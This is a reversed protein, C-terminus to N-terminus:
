LQWELTLVTSRHPLVALGVSPVFSNSNESPVVDAKPRGWFAADLFNFAYVGIAACAFAAYLTDEQQVTAKLSDSQTLQWTAYDADGANNFYYSGVVCGVFGGLLFIGKGTQHRRFQVWGPVLAFPMVRRRQRLSEKQDVADEDAVDNSDTGANEHLNAKPRAALLLGSQTGSADTALAVESM